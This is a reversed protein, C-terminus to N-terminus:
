TLVQLLFFVLLLRSTSAPGQVRVPSSSNRSKVAAATSPGLPRVWHARLVLVVGSGGAAAWPHKQRGGPAAPTRSSCGCCSPVVDTGWPVQRRWLLLLLLGHWHGFTCCGQPLCGPTRRGPLLLLLLLLLPAM